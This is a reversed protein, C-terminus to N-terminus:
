IFVHNPLKVYSLQNYEILALYNIKVHSAACMPPIVSFTFFLKWIFDKYKKCIYWEYSISFLYEMTVSLQEAFVGVQFMRCFGPFFLQTSTCKQYHIQNHCQENILFSNIWLKKTIFSIKNFAGKEFPPIRCFVWSNWCMSFKIFALVHVGRM